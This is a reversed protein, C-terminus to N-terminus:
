QAGRGEGGEGRLFGVVQEALHQHGPALAHGHAGAYHGHGPAVVAAHEAILVFVASHELVPGFHDLGDPLFQAAFAQGIGLFGHIVTGVGGEAIGLVGGSGPEHRLGANGGHQLAELLQQAPGGAGFLILVLLAGDVTQLHLVVEVAKQDPILALAVLSLGPLAVTLLPLTSMSLDTLEPKERFLVQTVMAFLAAALMPVIAKVGFFYVVPISAAMLVWTPWSVVRHEAVTLAHYEEWVAFSICVLTALAMVWNPLWLCIALFIILGIGTIIRQKM